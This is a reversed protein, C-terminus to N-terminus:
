ILHKSLPNLISSPQQLYPLDLKEAFGTVLHLQLTLGEHSFTLIIIIYHATGKKSLDQEKM